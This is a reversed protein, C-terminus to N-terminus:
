KKFLNGFPSNKNILINVISFWAEEIKPNEHEYERRLKYLVDSAGTKYFMAEKM